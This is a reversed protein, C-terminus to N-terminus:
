ARRHGAATALLELRTRSGTKHLVAAVHKEVTKVSIQLLEAIARDAMGKEVLARVERERKTLARGEVSAARPGGGLAGISVAQGRSAALVAQALASGSVSPDVFGLVGAARLLTASGDREGQGFVLVAVEPHRERLRRVFGVTDDTTGEGCVVVQPGLRVVSEFAEEATVSEGIVSLAPESWTLLRAVGACIVPRSDVVLVRVRDGDPQAPSVYPLRAKVRTGWGELSDITLSGGMGQTRERMRRLGLGNGDAEAPTVFGRGDDQVLLTLAASDYVLGVRVTHARAHQVVNTIAEQAVRLVEHALRHELAVPPGSVTLTADWSCAREAWQLESRLVGELSRGELPSSALGLLTARIAAVTKRTSTRADEVGQPAPQGALTLQAQAEDLQAFITASGQALLDQVEALVRDREAAAAQARAREEAAEHITANALAMAARRAFVQMVEADAQTFRRGVERSFAVCVGIIRGRWELPVGIVSTLTSRDEPSIHGGPVDDYRDFWVAGRRKVVAGTMGEALPFVRGVQCRIGIDVEKRYVGAAEDVSCISGCECGVLQTCRELIRELLPMLAVEGALDEAVADLAEARALAANTLPGVPDPVLALGNPRATSPTPQM